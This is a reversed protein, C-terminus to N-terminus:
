LPLPDISARPKSCGGQPLKAINAAIQWAEARTLVQTAARRGPEGGFYVYALVQGGHDRVILPPPPPPPPFHKLLGVGAYPGRLM